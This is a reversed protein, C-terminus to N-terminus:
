GIYSVRLVHEGVPLELEFHGNGNTTTGIQLREVYISVGVLVENTEADKVIGSVQGKQQAFGSFILGFLFFISLILKRHMKTGIFNTCLYLVKTLKICKETIKM